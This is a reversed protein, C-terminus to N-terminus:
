TSVKAILNTLNGFEIPELKGTRDKAEYSDDQVSKLQSIPHKGGNPDAVTYAHLFFDFKFPIYERLKRGEFKATYTVKGLNDEVRDQKAIVYVNKGKINLLNNIIKEMDMQMAGYAAEGHMKGGSRNKTNLYKVVINRSLQSADDLCLTDWKNINEALGLYNFAEEFDDLDEIEIVPINFGSLSLLGKDTSLIIPRPTTTILRTKQAGTRGYVLVKVGDLQQNSTNIVEITLINM